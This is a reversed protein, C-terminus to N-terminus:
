EKKDEFHEDIARYSLYVDIIFKAFVILLAYIVSAILIEKM